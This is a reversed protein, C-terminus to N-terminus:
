PRRFQWRSQGRQAERQLVRSRVAHLWRAGDPFQHRRDAQPRQAPIPREFRRIEGRVRRDQRRRPALVRAGCRSLPREMGVLGAPIQRAPIRGLGRGLAGRDVQCLRARTRRAAVQLLRLARQFRQGRAGAGDGSRIPVRRRAHGRGLIQPLRHDPHSGAPARLQRHQRLRHSKRLLRKDQQMLRYYVANDIGRLSLLPGLENGEATHNFVVDLIVEIGAAHLAKVMTKFEAVADRVAYENAPAFWALPNYGWYNRLGRDRLFQESVFSQCPLLEVATVGISKLHEIVPAM